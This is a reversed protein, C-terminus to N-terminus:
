RGEPRTNGMEPNFLDNNRSNHDERVSTALDNVAAVFCEMPPRVLGAGVQGIGPLRHAIGTNIIPLLGQRVVQRIDIGVPSGRFGLPPLQYQAEEAVTIDYMELTYRQADAPTGGVFQVIAPATAMAFAGIGVTESITSDGIDPNADAESFGSFYLGKIMQAPAVYWRDGLGSVRIGFDTGNRAMTTVVSGYAMGHAALAAAKCAAMSLNLYFHDNGHIFRMVSATEETSSGTEVLYPAIERLFLSTAAKNRNHCEDGMLLAQATMSKIELGGMARVACALAPGLVQEMWRLRALVEPGNAGYRLVKGLGENLTSFTRHGYVPEEIVQVPMSASVVGAMPGVANYHHCPAFAIEGSASLREAEITDEALGEYLLAGIVAGRLPGSMREWSIPPGAHLLLHKEMGEIVEGAPRVDVLRPRAAMMRQVAEENARGVREDGLLVGLVEDSNGAAPQWSVRVVAAGQAELAEAFLDAGVNVFREQQPVSQPINDIFQRVERLPPPQTPNPLSGQPRGGDGKSTEDLGEDIISGYAREGHGVLMGAALAAAVNSEFVMAGAAELAARQMSLRQPDGETGCLSVIVPLMRGVAAAKASAQMIAPAYVAAPNEQACFGLVIDLLIVATEEDEAARALYQLRLTPDIMPHPRGRTFEDSGLDLAMHGRYLESAKGAELTWEARLPINSAVAGVQESLLLMAEDCLTGGSYLARIYRQSGALKERIGALDYKHLANKGPVGRSREGGALAVALEAGETLTRAMHVKGAVDAFQEQSSGLFVVVVPKTLQATSLIERAVREAPPKSVLVIVETQTDDALLEIGKCMMVGGIAESLDRGGTGIAQSIGLGAAAILCMVQQMGTGSAGVIGISGRPVVNSFGLGVGNMVATGCDPGMLLLGKEAALAKLRREQEVPVNDSFLFVHMGHRLAQEAELWAHEGAVSIVAMDAEGGRRLAVELSRIPVILEGDSSATGREGRVILREEAIALADAAKEEDVARVVILLDEPGAEREQEALFAVPLLDSNRLLERNLETAMVAGVDEVGELDRVAQAVSMLTISDYYTNRKILARIAM